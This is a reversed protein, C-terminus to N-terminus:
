VAYRSKRLLRQPLIITQICPASASGRSLGIAPGAWSYPHANGGHDALGEDVATQVVVRSEEM